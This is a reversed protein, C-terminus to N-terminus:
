ENKNGNNELSGYLKNAVLLVADRCGSIDTLLNKVVPDDFMVDTKSAIDIKQHYEDLIDLSEEIQEGLDELKDLLEINKRISVVLSAISLFTVVSLVSLAFIM